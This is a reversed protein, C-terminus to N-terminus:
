EFVTHVLSNKCHQRGEHVFVPQQHGVAFAKHGPLEQSTQPLGEALDHLGLKLKGDLKVSQLQVVAVQRQKNSGNNETSTLHHDQGRPHPMRKLIFYNLVQFVFTSEVARPRRKVKIM